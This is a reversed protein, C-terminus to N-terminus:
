EPLLPASRTFYRWTCRQLGGQSLKRDFTVVVALATIHPREPCFHGTPAFNGGKRPALMADPEVGSASAPALGQCGRGWPPSLLEICLFFVAIMVALVAIVIQNKKFVKKM